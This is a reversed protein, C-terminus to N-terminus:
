RPSRLARGRASSAGPARTARALDVLMASSSPASASRRRAAGAAACIRRTVCATSQRWRISRSRRPSSRSKTSPARCLGACLRMAFRDMQAEPLPYTGRFEVPNQTAIVFFLDDLAITKGEISVQGEPWRRSCRRSRARAPATSRTPWCSRPSSRGAGPLQFDQDRPDFVSVGLIDSPCCTPRSSCAGSSPASAAGAGQGAHDQRHRSHGRAACTGLAALLLRMLERRTRPDGARYQAEIGAHDLARRADIGDSSCLSLWVPSRVKDDDSFVSAARRNATSERDAHSRPAAKEEIRM